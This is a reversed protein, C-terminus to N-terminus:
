PPFNCIMVAGVLMDLASPAEIAQTSGECIIYCTEESDDPLNISTGFPKQGIRRSRGRQTAKSNNPSQGNDKNNLNAKRYLEKLNIKIKRWLIM